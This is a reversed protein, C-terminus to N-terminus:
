QLHQKLMQEESENCRNSELMFNLIVKRVQYPKSPRKSNNKRFYKIVFSKDSEIHHDYGIFSPTYHTISLRLFRLELDNSKRDIAKNILKMGNELYTLKNYPNWAHRAMIAKSSGKYGLELASPNELRKMKKHFLEASDADDIAAM